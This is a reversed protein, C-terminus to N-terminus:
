FAAPQRLSMGALYVPVFPRWPSTRFTANGGNLVGNQREAVPRPLNFPQVTKRGLHVVGEITSKARAAGTM